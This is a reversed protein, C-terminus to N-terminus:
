PAPGRCPCGSRGCGRGSWSVERATGRCGSVVDPPGAAGAAPGGRYVAVRLCCLLNLDALDKPRGTFTKSAIVDALSAFPLGEVTVARAILGDTDLTPHVWRDFIELAGGYLRVMSGHGSPAAEAPRISTAVAWARRRAVVDLDGIAPRIGYALLPGSGFIVYDETPMYLGLLLRVLPHTRLEPRSQPM